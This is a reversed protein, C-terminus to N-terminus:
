WRVQMQVVLRDNDLQAVQERFVEYDAMLKLDDGRFFYQGGLLYGTLRDVAV